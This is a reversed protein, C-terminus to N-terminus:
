VALKLGNSWVGLMSVVNELKSSTRETKREQYLCVWVTNKINTTHQEFISYMTVCLKLQTRLAAVCPLCYIANHETIDFLPLVKSPALSGILVMSYQFVYQRFQYQARNAQFLFPNKRDLSNLLRKASSPRVLQHM